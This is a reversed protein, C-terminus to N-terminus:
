PDKWWRLEIHPKFPDNGLQM